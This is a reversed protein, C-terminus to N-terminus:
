PHAFGKIKNKAAPAEFVNTCVGLPRRAPYISLYIISLCNTPCTKPCPTGLIPVSLPTRKKKKKKWVEWAKGHFTRYSQVGQSEIIYGELCTEDKGHGGRKAVFSDVGGEVERTPPPPPFGGGM